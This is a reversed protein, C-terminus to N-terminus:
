RMARRAASGPSKSTAIEELVSPDDSLHTAATPWQPFSAFYHARELTAFSVGSPVSWEDGTEENALEALSFAIREMLERARGRLGVLGPATEWIEHRPGLFMIVDEPLLMARSRSFSM